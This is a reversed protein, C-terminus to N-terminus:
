DDKGPKELKNQIALNFQEEYMEDEYMVQRSEDIYVPCQIGYKYKLGERQVVPIIYGMSKEIDEESRCMAFAAHCNMAKAFDEAFDKMDIYRDKNMKKVGEKSIQSPTISFVRRKNNIRIAHHYNYQIKLRLDKISRDACGALDLYDYVIIDPKWQYEEWLEDLKNDVDDLTSIHAPFHEVRLDGGMRAWGLIIKQLEEKYVGMYLDEKTCELISQYTRNLISKTGNEFDAFFVKRGMMVFNKIINLITGTKFGKPGGMIIILQPQFFGRDATMRNMLKLYVPTVDKNDISIESYDKLLFSGDSKNISEDDFGSLSAIDHFERSMQKFFQSDAEQIKDMNKDIFLKTKKKQVFEVITIRYIETDDLLPEYMMDILLTLTQIMNESINLPTKLTNLYHQFNIKSPVYRFKKTYKILASFIFKHEDLDFLNSDVDEIYQRSEKVQAFYKLLNIQFELNM